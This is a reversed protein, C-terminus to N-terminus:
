QGRVAHNAFYERFKNQSMLLAAIDIRIGQLSDIDHVMAPLKLALLVVNVQTM